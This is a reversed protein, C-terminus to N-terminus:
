EVDRLINRKLVEMHGIIDSAHSACHRFLCRRDLTMIAVGALGIVEGNKAMSLLNELLGIIEQSNAKNNLEVIKM